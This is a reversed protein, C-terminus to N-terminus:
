NFFYRLSLTGDVDFSTEPIINFVPAIKLSLDINNKTSLWAIGIVGRAGILSETKEAAKIRGGFGYFVPIVEQSNFLKFIHQVYDLHMSIEDNGAFSYGLGADFAESGGVWHKFSFGTPEGLSFGIGTGSEQAQVGNLGLFITLIFAYFLKKM